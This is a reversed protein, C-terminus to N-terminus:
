PRCNARPMLRSITILLEISCNSAPYAVLREQKVVEDHRPMDRLQRRSRPYVQPYANQSHEAL